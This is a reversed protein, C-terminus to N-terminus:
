FPGKVTELSTEQKRRHLSRIQFAETAIVMKLVKEKKRKGTAEM